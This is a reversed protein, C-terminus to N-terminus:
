AGALGEAFRRLRGMAEGLASEPVTMAVRVHGAAAQGFSEGPMVAIREEELLRGAFAGGTLGTARIDLMVFMGGGPPVMRVANARALAAEAVALRARFPAAIREEFGEGLSLAYWAADQIFGPVAYTTNLAVASVAAIVEPEAVIWGLRSGTMAHSKSLSGVVLTRERMGPLARPSLHAGHWVMTDYVEDSILWLDADRAAGAVAEVTPRPYITGTPNNPTNMLLTRAPAGSTGARAVADLIARGEPLFAAEARTPVAAAEAGTTRITGPYTAYHPDFFLGTEGAGTLVMHALFLATQGGTTVVVNEWDTPVGTRARTRAAIAERLARTGPGVTYGTHGGMASDHMAKLIAPDTKVDHDGITLNVVAEGRSAMDRAAYYVEWGDSGGQTIHAARAGLRM